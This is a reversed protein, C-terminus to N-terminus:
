WVVVRLCWTNNSRWKVLLGGQCLFRESPCKWHAWRGLIATTVGANHSKRGLIVWIRTTVHIRADCTLPSSHIWMYMGNVSTKNFDSQELINLKHKTVTESSIATWRLTDGNRDITDGCEDGLVPDKREHWPYDNIAKLFLTCHKLQVISTYTYMYTHIHSSIHIYLIHIHMHVHTHAHSCIYIYIHTNQKHIYVCTM